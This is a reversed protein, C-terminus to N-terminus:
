ETGIGRTAERLVPKADYIEVVVSHTWLVGMKPYLVIQAVVIVLIGFVMRAFIMWHVYMIGM